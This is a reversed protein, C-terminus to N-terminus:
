HVIVTLSEAHKDTDYVSYSNAKHKNYWDREKRQKDRIKWEVCKKEMKKPCELGCITVTQACVPFHTFCLCSSFGAFLFGFISAFWWIHTILVLSSTTDGTPDLKIIFM